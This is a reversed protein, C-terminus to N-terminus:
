VRPLEPHSPVRFVLPDAVGEAEAREHVEDLSDAVAVIMGEDLAIWRGRHALMEVAVEASWLPPVVGSIVPEAPRQSM